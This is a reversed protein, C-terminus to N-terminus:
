LLTERFTINTAAYLQQPPTYIFDQMEIAAPTTNRQAEKRPEGMGGTCRGGGSRLHADAIVSASVSPRVSELAELTM